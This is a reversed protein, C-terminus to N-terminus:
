SLTFYVFYYCPQAAHISCQSVAVAHVLTEQCLQAVYQFIADSMRYIAHTYIISSGLKM